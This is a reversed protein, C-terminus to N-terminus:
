MDTIDGGILVFDLSDQANIDKLCAMFAESSGPLGFHLDTIFAFRVIDAYSVYVSLATMFFICFLKRIM